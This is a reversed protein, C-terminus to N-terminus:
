AAGARAPSSITEVSVQTDALSMVQLVTKYVGSDGSGGLAIRRADRLNTFQDIYTGDCYVAWEPGAAHVVPRITCHSTRM